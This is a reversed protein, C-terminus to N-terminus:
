PSPGRHSVKRKPGRVSRTSPHCTHGPARMYSCAMHPDSSSLSVVSTFSRSKQIKISKRLDGKFKPAKHKAKTQITKAVRNYFSDMPDKILNNPDIRRYFRRLSAEDFRIEMVAAM